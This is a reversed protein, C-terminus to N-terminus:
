SIFYPDSGSGSKVRRRCFEASVPIGDPGTPQPKGTGAGAWEHSALRDQFRGHRFQYVPGVTRLVNRSRADELFRLLRVPTRRSAALQAFALSCSWAQPYVLWVVLGVGLEPALGLPGFTAPSAATPAGPVALPSKLGRSPARQGRTAPATM